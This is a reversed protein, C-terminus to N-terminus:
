CGMGAPRAHYRPGADRQGPPLQDKDILRDLEDETIDGHGGGTVIRERLEKFVEARTRDYSGALKGIGDAWTTEQQPQSHWHTLWHSGAPM